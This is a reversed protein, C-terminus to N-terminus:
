IEENFSELLAVSYGAFKGFFKNKPLNPCNISHIIKKDSSSM